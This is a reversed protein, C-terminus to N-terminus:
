FYGCGLKFWDTEGIQEVTEFMVTNFNNKFGKLKVTSSSRGVNLSEVIYSEGEILGAKRALEPEHDYGNDNIFRVVSGKGEKLNM